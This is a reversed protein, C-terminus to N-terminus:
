GCEKGGARATANWLGSLPHTSELPQDVGFMPSHPHDSRPSVATNKSIKNRQPCSISILAVLWLSCHLGWVPKIPVHNIAPNPPNNLTTPCDAKISGIWPRALTSYGQVWSTPAHAVPQNQVSMWRNKDTNSPWPLDSQSDNFKVDM